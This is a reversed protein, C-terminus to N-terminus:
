SNTIFEGIRKKSVKTTTIEKEEVLGFASCNTGWKGESSSTM